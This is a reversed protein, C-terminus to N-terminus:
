LMRTSMPTPSTRIRIGTTTPTRGSIVGLPTQLGGSGGFGGTGTAVYLNGDPGFIIAQLEVLGVAELRREAGVHDPLELPGSNM